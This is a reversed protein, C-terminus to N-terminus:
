QVVSQNFLTQLELIQPATDSDQDDVPFIIVNAACIAYSPVVSGVGVGVGLRSAHCKHKIAGMLMAGLVTAGVLRAGVLRSGVLMPDVLMAGVLMPTALPRWSGGLAALAYLLYRGLHMKPVM